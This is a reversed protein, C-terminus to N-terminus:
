EERLEARLENRISIKDHDMGSPYQPEDVIDKTHKSFASRIEGYGLKSYEAMILAGAIEELFKEKDILHKM